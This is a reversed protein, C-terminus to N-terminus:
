PRVCTQTNRWNVKGSPSVYTQMFNLGDAGHHGDGRTFDLVCAASTPKADYSQLTDIFRNRTCDRGCADLQVALAKQATWNLFLLDGGNGSLDAGPDYKAYQAEFQRMDDAYGAFTGDYDGKSYAPYMAVGDLPPQMADNGLTQSTLNFPFMLYHPSYMQAKAQKLFETSNLANEWLFVTEAGANKLALIENTYNGQKDNVPVDAVVNLNAQKAAAKFHEAGPKWNPSSREVIGIRSGAYRAIALQAFGDGMREVSPLETFSYKLGASGNTTATHHLYLMQHQEAWNRVAPIQDFGIGGLLMFIGKAECATAATVATAPDYNDNEYTVTVQRGQVGGKETNLATWFVNLDNDTTNFAKGYTLAAHACMTLSTPTLGSINAAGSFLTSGGAAGSGGGAPGTGAPGGAAPGGAAPGGAPGTSGASGTSGAQGRVTAATTTAQSGPAGAPGAANQSVLLSGGTPSVAGPTGAPADGTSSLADPAPASSCAALALVLAAAGLLRTQTRGSRSRPSLHPRYM